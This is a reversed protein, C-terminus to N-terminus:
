QCRHLAHEGGEVVLFPKCSVSWLPPWPSGPTQVERRDGSPQPGSPSGPGWAWGRGLGQELGVAAGWALSAPWSAQGQVGFAGAMQRLVTGGGRDQPALPWRHGATGQGQPLFM